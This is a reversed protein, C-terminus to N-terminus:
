GFPEPMAMHKVARVHLFGPLRSWRTSPDQPSVERIAEVLLGGRELARSFAELPRHVSAFTMQLGDREVDDSYNRMEFYSATMVWPSDAETGAFEGASNMPHVIAFCFRGGPQLLRAVEAVAGELDDIDQLSVLAVALDAVRGRIPLQAADAVVTPQRPHAAAALRALTSSGDLGIVRDGRAMLDRGLRGEGCGIDITLGGPPPLLELFRDRHFHEYSDHGPQRAWRAWAEAHSEWTRRLDLPEHRRRLRV